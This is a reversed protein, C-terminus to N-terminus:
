VLQPEHEEEKVLNELLENVQFHDAEEVFVLSDLLEAIKDSTGKFAEAINMKM